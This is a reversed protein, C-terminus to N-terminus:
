VNKVVAQLSRLIFFSAVQAEIAKSQMGDRCCGDDTPIRLRFSLEQTDFFKRARRFFLEEKERHRWTQAIIVVTDGKVLSRLTRLLKLWTSIDNGYVCDALFVFDFDCSAIDEDITEGWALQVAEVLCSPYRDRLSELNERLTDVVLMEGDTATVRGMGALAACIAVLGMGSGLELCAKGCLAEASLISFGHADRLEYKQALVQALGYGANWTACGTGTGRQRLEIPFDLGVDFTRRPAYFSSLFSPKYPVLDSTQSVKQTDSDSGTGDQSVAQMQLLSGPPTTIPPATIRKEAERNWAGHNRRTRSTHPPSPSSTPCVVIYVKPREQKDYDAM